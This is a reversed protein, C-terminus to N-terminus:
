SGVEVVIMQEGDVTETPEDVVQVTVTLSVAVGNKVGIPATCNLPGDEKPDL